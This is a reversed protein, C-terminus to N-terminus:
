RTIRLYVVALTDFVPNQFAIEFRDAASPLDIGPDFKLALPHYKDPVGDADLDGLELADGAASFAALFVTLSAFSVQAHRETPNPGAVAALFATLTPHIAPAGVAGDFTRTLTVTGTPAAGPIYTLAKLGGIKFPGRAVFSQVANQDWRAMENSVTLSEGFQDNITAPITSILSSAGDTDEFHFEYLVRYDTTRRWANINSVFLPEAAPTNEANIRLVGRQRLHPKAALVRGHLENTATDVDTPQDGWLQFRVVANLRGGKLAVGDLAGRSENGRWNGVALAQESVSAVSVDPQQHPPPQPPPLLDRMETLLDALALDLSSAM